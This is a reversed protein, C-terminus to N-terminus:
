SATASACPTRSGRMTMSHEEVGPIGFFNPQGGLSIILQDYPFEIGGDAM